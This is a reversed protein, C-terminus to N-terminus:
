IIDENTEEVPSQHARPEGEDEGPSVKVRPYKDYNYMMYYSIRIGTQAEFQEKYWQIRKSKRVENARAKIAPDNIFAVYQKKQSPKIRTKSRGMKPTTPVTESPMEESGSPCNEQETMKTFLFFIIYYLSNVM